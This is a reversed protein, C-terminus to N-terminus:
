DRISRNFYMRMIQAWSPTIYHVNSKQRGTLTVNFDKFPNVNVYNWNFAKNLQIRTNIDSYNYIILLIETPIM